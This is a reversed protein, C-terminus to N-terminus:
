YDYDRGTMKKLMKAAQKRIVPSKNKLAEEWMRIEEVWAGEPSPPQAIASEKAAPVSPKAVPPKGPKKEERPPEAVPTPMPIDTVVARIESPKGAKKGKPPLETELDEFLAKPEIGEQEGFIELPERLSSEIFDNEGGALIPEEERVEIAEIQKKEVPPEVPAGRAPSVKKAEPQVRKAALAASEETIRFAFRTGGIQIEDGDKLITETVPRDNVKTGRWSGLDRLLFTDGRRQIVAHEKGVFWDPLCIACGKSRGITIEAKEVRFEQDKQKGHTVRLIAVPVRDVIMTREAGFADSIMAEDTLVENKFILTHKGITIVDNHSIESKTVQKGNVFTGNASNLDSIFFKGNEHRIRAHNRSIALNEIVVDNDRSRGISVIDKEFVFRNVVSDGLTVIIEPM